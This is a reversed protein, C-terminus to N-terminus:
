APRADTRPSQRPYPATHTLAKTRTKRGCLYKFFGQLVRDAAQPRLARLISIGIALAVFSLFLITVLSCRDLAAQRMIEQVFFDKAERSNLTM